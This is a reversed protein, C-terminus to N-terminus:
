KRKRLVMGLASAIRELVLCCEDFDFNDIHNALEQLDSEFTDPAIYKMLEELADYSDADGEELLTYLENILEFSKEVDNTFGSSEVIEAGALM